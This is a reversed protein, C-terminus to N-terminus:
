RVSTNVSSGALLTLTQPLPTSYCPVSSYTITYVGEPANTQTFSSGNGSYTAPGKLTYAAGSVNSTVQITGAADHFGVSVGRDASGSANQFSISVGRGVAGVNQPQAVGLVCAFLFIFAIRAPVRASYCTQM